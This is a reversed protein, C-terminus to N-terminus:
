FDQVSLPQELTFKCEFAVYQNWCTYRGRASEHFHTFTDIMSDSIMEFWRREQTSMRTEGVNDELHKRDSPSVFFGLKSVCELYQSMCLGPFGKDLNFDGYEGSATLKCTYPTGLQMPTTATDVIVVFKKEVGRSTRVEKEIVRRSSLLKRIRKESGYKTPFHESRIMRFSPYLDVARRHLNLDGALIVPKGHKERLHQMRFRLANLFKIKYELRAANSANSVYVNLLLFNSHITLVCRGEKDLISDNLSNRSASCTFGTNIDNM